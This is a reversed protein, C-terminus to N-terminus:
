KLFMLCQQGEFSLLVADLPEPFQHFSNITKIEIAKNDELINEIKIRLNNIKEADM